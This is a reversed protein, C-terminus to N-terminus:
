KNNQVMISKKSLIYLSLFGFLFALILEKDIKESNLYIGSIVVIFIALWKTTFFVINVAQYQFLLYYSYQCLLVLLISSILWYIKSTDIYFKLFITPIASTLTAIIIWFYYSYLSLGTLMM